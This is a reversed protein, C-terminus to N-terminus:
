CYSVVIMLIRAWRVGLAHAIIQAGFCVGVLAKGAQGELDRVLSCLPEFWSLNPGDRVNHRSGSIFFVDADELLPLQEGFGTLM